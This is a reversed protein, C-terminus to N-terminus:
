SRDNIVAIEEMVEDELGRMIKDEFESEEHDYGCLHLFGHVLLHVFEEEFSLGNEQAQRQCVGHAVFMDGLELHGEFAEFEGRRPNEQLPFSLVDTPRDFQRHEKNLEQIQRDSCLNLNAEIEDFPGKVFIPGKKALVQMALELLSCLKPSPELIKEFFLNLILNEAKFTKENQM